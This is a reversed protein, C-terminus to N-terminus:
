PQRPPRIQRYQALASPSALRPRDEAHTFVDPPWEYDYCGWFDTVNGARVLIIEVMVSDMEFARKHPFRKAHIEAVLGTNLFADVTEFSAAPYLLDIDHHPRPAALGHLEEAWGGFLWTRVGHSELLLSVRQVLALDNAM